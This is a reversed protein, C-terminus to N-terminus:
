RVKGLLASLAGSFMSPKTAIKRAAVMRRKHYAALQPDMTEAWGLPKNSATHKLGELWENQGALAAPAAATSLKIFVGSAITMM